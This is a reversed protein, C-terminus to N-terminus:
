GDGAWDGERKEGGQWAGIQAFVQWSRSLNKRELRDLASLDMGNGKVRALRVGMPLIPDKESAPWEVEVVYKQTKWDWRRLVHMGWTKPQEDKDGTEDAQATLYDAVMQSDELQNLMGFRGVLHRNETALALEHWFEAPYQREKFDVEGEATVIEKKAMGSLMYAVTHRSVDGIDKVADKELGPRIRRVDVIEAGPAYKGWESKVAEHDIYPVRAFVVMHIHPHYTKTVPNYTVEVSYLGGAILSWLRGVDSDPRRGATERMRKFPELLASDLYSPFTTDEPQWAQRNVAEQARETKERWRQLAKAAARARRQAKKRDENTTSETVQREWEALRREWEAVKALCEALRTEYEAHYVFAKVPIQHGEADFEVLHEINPVTLTIFFPYLKVTEAALMRDLKDARVQSREPKGMDADMRVQELFKRQAEALAAESRVLLGNGDLTFEAGDYIEGRGDEKIPFQAFIPDMEESWGEARRKRCTPCLRHMCFWVAEIVVGGDPMEGKLVWDGCRRMRFTQDQTDSFRGLAKAIRQNMRKLAREVQDIKERGADAESPTSKPPLVSKKRKDTSIQLLDLSPPEVGLVGMRDVPFDVPVAAPFDVPVLEPTPIEVWQVSQPQPSNRKSSDAGPVTAM